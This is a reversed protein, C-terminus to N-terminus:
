PSAAAYVAALGRFGVTARVPNLAADHEVSRRWFDSRQTKPLAGMAERLLELAREQCHQQKVRDSPGEPAAGAAAQAFIRAANYLTRPQDSGLQLAKDADRLAEGLRGCKALVYGRGNYGDCNSPDLRVTVEFDRLALPLAELMVYCWGRGAHDAATNLGDDDDLARGYDEAATAHDGVAVAAQARARYVRSEPRGGARREGDVYRNLAQIAEAFRDLRLLAEARVRHAAPDDPNATLAADAARLAEDARGIKLLLQGMRRLDVAAAPCPAGAPEHRVAQELDSVAAKWDNLQENVKARSRFVTPLVAPGARDAARDLQERAKPLQKLDQFAKALNFYAPLENPV